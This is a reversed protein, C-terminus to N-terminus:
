TDYVRTHEKGMHMKKNKIRLEKNKIRKNKM